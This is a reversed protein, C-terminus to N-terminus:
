PKTLLRLEFLAEEYEHVKVFGLKQYCNIAAENDAKVNLCLQKKEEILEACLHATLRTALGRGRHEPHTTINGLVAIRDRNSSVHVGAVAILRGGESVGYYKGTQLMRPVFYNDPYAVAFLDRLAPEDVDSLRVITDPENSSMSWSSRDFITSDLSMKLHTGLSTENAFSRFVARHQRQFHCYFKRPAIPLYDALLSEFSDSLGFALLTPTECGLYILLADEIASRTNHTVAWQCDPFYFDDLDGIHYAFLVPDKLLHKLLQKKDTTFLM